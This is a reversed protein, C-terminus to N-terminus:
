GIRVDRGVHVAQLYKEVSIAVPTAMCVTSGLEFWGLEEGLKMESNLFTNSNLKITDVGFGGV